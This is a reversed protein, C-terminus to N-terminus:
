DGKWGMRVPGPLRSLAEAAAADIAAQGPHPQKMTELHALEKRKAEVEEAQRDFPVILFHYPEAWDGPNSQLDIYRQAESRLVPKSFTPMVKFGALQIEPSDYRTAKRWSIAGWVMGNMDTEM